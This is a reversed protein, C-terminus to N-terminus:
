LTDAMLLGFVSTLVTIVLIGLWAMKRKTLLEILDLKLILPMAKYNIINALLFVGVTFMMVKPLTDFNWVLKVSSILLWAALFSLSAIAIATIEANTRRFEENM